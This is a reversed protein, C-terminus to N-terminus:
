TMLVGCSSIFGNIKGHWANENRFTEPKPVNWFLTQHCFNEDWVRPKQEDWGAIPCSKDLAGTRLPVVPLCRCALVVEIHKSLSKNCKDPLPLYNHEDNPNPKLSATQVTMSIRIRYVSLSLRYHDFLGLLNSKRGLPNPSSNDGFQFRGHLDPWGPGPRVSSRLMIKWNLKVMWWCLISNAGFRVAQSTTDLRPNRQHKTSGLKSCCAWPPM